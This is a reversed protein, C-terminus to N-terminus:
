RLRYDALVFPALREVVGVLGELKTTVQPISYYGPGWAVLADGDIRWELTPHALMWEMLQPNLVASAYRGDACDVWFLDNFAGSELELDPVGFARAIPNDQVLVLGPLPVPLTVSVLHCKHHRISRGAVTTYSFDLACMVHGRFQGTVMRDARGRSGYIRRAVGALFPNPPAQQWGLSAAQAAREAFFRRRLVVVYPLALLVILALLLLVIAAVTGM